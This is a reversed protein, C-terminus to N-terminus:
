LEKGVLWDAIVTVCKERHGSNKSKVVKGPIRAKGLRPFGSWVKALKVLTAM